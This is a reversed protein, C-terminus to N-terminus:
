DHLGFSKESLSVEGVSGYIVAVESWPVFVVFTRPAVPVSARKLIENTYEQNEVWIGYAEIKHLKYDKVKTPTTPNFFRIAAEIM